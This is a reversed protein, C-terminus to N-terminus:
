DGLFESDDRKKSFSQPSRLHPSARLWSGYQSGAGEWLRGKQPSNPCTRGHHKILGFHFCLLPLWEYKFPIWFRQEGINIVWGRLLPKTIDVLVKVRLFSRWAMGGADVDVALMDGMAVGLREGITKNMGTFPLDHLQVWFPEQSFSFDKPALCGDCDHLCILFRDFSWPWGLLVTTKEPISQFEILFKNFGLDKFSVQGEVKWIKSMIARFAGKNVEKEAVVM